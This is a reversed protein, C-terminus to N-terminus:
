RPRASAQVRTWGLQVHFDALFRGRAGLFRHGDLSLMRRSMGVSGHPLRGFVLGLGSDELEASEHWTFRSFCTTSPARAMKRPSMAVEVLAQPNAQVTASTARPAQVPM